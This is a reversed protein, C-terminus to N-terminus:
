EKVVRLTAETPDVPDMMFAGADRNAVLWAVHAATIRQGPVLRPVGPPAPAIMEAAIRGAASEYRVMEAPGNLAAPGPMVMDVSLTDIGPPVATKPLISSDAALRAVLDRLGRVLAKQDARTTGVSVVALIHRADSLGMSIRHNEYLWDDVAYGSVGLPSVDILIKTVDLDADGPIDARTLVRLPTIEAVKTRMKEALAIVAAWIREGDVAHDRRTADLSALIPVSPSTTEFLEYAMWLRQLDVQKGKAVIVSGQALAGMTKHASYVAVDAGKALPDDPLETCFAFAGGWAADVILPIGHDHCIASLSAVDSTVGYYTPSVVIFAKANPHAALTKRLAQPTVGHEIDWTADTQVPVVVDDLGTALAYTREAKHANAAILITDGPAAVAAMVTHLSQTSGGTVFRCFDAGWAEAAIEHARQLVLKGETRDDLGKPTLVDARFVRKGLLARMGGPMAAGQNHGPAGFGIVPRREIRALAEVLPAIKQDM